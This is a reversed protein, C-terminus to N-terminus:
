AALGVAQHEWLSRLSMQELLPVPSPRWSATHAPWSSVVLGVFGRAAFLFHQLARSFSPDSHVVGFCVFIVAAGGPFASQTGPVSTVFCM